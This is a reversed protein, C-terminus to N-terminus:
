NEILLIIEWALRQWVFWSRDRLEKENPLKDMMVYLIRYLCYIVDGRLKERIGSLLSSLGQLDAQM